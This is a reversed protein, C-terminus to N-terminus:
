PTGGSPDRSGVLRRRNLRGQFCLAGTSTASMNLRRKSENVHVRESNDHYTPQGREYEHEPYDPPIVGARPELLEPELGGALQVLPALREVSLIEVLHQGRMVLAAAGAPLGLDAGVLELRPDQALQGLLRAPVLISCRQRAAQDDATSAPPAREGALQDVGAM